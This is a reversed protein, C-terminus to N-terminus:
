LELSDVHAREGYARQIIKHLIKNYKVFLRRKQVTLSLYWLARTHGIVM